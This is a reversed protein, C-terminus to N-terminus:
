SPGTLGVKQFGGRPYWIGDVIESYQLLSYTGPAQYPSMGMYMSAFTWAQKMKTSSFYQEVVGFMATWPRMSILMKLVSPQLLTLFRPFDRRLIYNLTLNYYGGAEKLFDFLKQVGRPGEHRVLERKLRSLDSSLEVTDNDPFWICYNPECKLLQVGEAELSTGLENFTENFIERM